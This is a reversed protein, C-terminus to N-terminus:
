QCSKRFITNGGNKAAMKFKQTFCLLANIETVTCSLAIEALNKDGMTDASGVPSKEWLDNERQKQCGDQM